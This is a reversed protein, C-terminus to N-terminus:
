KHSAPRKFKYGFSTPLSLEEFAKNLFKDTMSAVYDVAIRGNTTSILYRGRVGDHAWRYIKSDARKRELCNLNAFFVVDFMKSIKDDQATKIPNAYIRRNNFAKLLSLAHYVDESMKLFDNGYSNNIIDTVLSNVITRNKDGLITVVDKPLDKRRILNLKIADEVDRGVYAIVDAIRVVCAELTMPVLKTSTAINKACAVYESIFEQKTKKYSPRYEGQLIEGNHCLIGDLVQLTLNLGKSHEELEMLLRVSQANHVFTGIGLQECYKQLYGEGNHGYPAHGVDHGLAIAEILDENLKLSRGISRAIKSVLQVHLVRHTIHDNEILYFVQTKDVYRAYSQCHIIRDTDHSFATRINSKDPVEERGSRLREAKNNFCAYTSLFENERRQSDRLIEDAIEPRIRISM